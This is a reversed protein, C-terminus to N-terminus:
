SQGEREIRDSAKEAADAAAVLARHEPGSLAGADRAILLEVRWATAFGRLAAAKAEREIVPRAAAIAPSHESAVDLWIRRDEKTMSEWVGETFDHGNICWGACCSPCTECAGGNCVDPCCQGEGLVTADPFVEQVGAAQVAAVAIEAKREWEGMDGGDCEDDPCQDAHLVEAVSQVPDTPSDASM